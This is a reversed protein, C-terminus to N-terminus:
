ALEKLAAKVTRAAARIAEDDKAVLAADSVLKGGMGVCAAGAAFYDALNGAEIGGTPMIDIMPYVSKLAKIFGPGGLQAAPFVKVFAAGAENARLAETPTAAGLAVPVGSAAGTESLGPIFAPSVVFSAGADIAAKGQDVNLVTGVGVTLDPDKALDAIVEMAGPTTLTIEFLAFGEDALLEVGRRAAAETSTRIVPAVRASILNATIDM